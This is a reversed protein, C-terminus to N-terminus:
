DDPHGPALSERSIRDLWEDRTEDRRPGNDPREEDHRGRLIEAEDLALMASDFVSTSGSVREAVDCLVGVLKELRECRAESTASRVELTVVRAELLRVNENTLFSEVSM